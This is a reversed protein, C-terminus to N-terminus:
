RTNGLCSILPMGGILAHISQVAVTMVSGIILFLLSSRLIMLNIRAMPMAWRIHLFDTM